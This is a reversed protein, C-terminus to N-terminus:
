NVKNPEEFRKNFKNQRKKNFAARTNLEPKFVMIYLKYSYIFVFHITNLAHISFALVLNKTTSKKQLFYIAAVTGLIMISAFSSYIVHNTEKFHSPLKRCRVAQISNALVLILVFTLHVIIDENNNCTLEKILDLQHYVFTVEIPRNIFTIIVILIDLTLLFSIIVLEMVDIRKKKRDSLVTKSSFILNLKQTKAINVSVSVTLCIGVLIPKLTCTIITPEGLFFITPVTSLILHSSLHLITMNQNAHKVM